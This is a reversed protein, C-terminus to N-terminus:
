DLGLAAQAQARAHDMAARDTDRWEREALSHASLWGVMADRSEVPGLLQANVGYIDILAQPPMPDGEFRSQVLNERYKELWEVTNLRRQDLSGERRISKVGPRLCEAATLDVHLGHTPVDLRLTTRDCGTEELLDDCIEQLRLRLFGDRLLTGSGEIPTTVGAIRLAQWLTVAVSDLIPIGLEAELGAVIGAGAVNTCVVAVAHAEPAVARVQAALQEPAVRGFAENDSIGLHDEAIVEIGHRAYIDVIRESVESTYPTVLGLRSVGYVSYADILALASTTAPIGTAARIAAVIDRDHDLGLWSGSTGNWAIVNVKADALLRAAAVLADVDFQVSSGEDLGIRTVRLRSFHVSVGETGDLLRYTGPELCSNSSPTIMGIRIPGPQEATTM